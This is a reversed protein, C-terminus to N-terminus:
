GEQGDALMREALELAALVTEIRNQFRDGTFLHREVITRGGFSCGVYVLGVPKEDSGGDPGAIGTASLGMDAGAKKAAGEAMERATQESVAGYIELTESKVDLLRRKAENSYTVFGTSFVASAGSVSVICSSIMGGTCSEAATITYGKKRMKKVINEMRREAEKEREERARGKVDDKMDDKVENKLQELEQEEKQKYVKNM